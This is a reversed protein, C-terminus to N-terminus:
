VEKYVNIISDPCSIACNSCAICDEIRVAKSPSYGKKNITSLDIELVNKPCVYVCVGCGKCRDVDLEVWKKLKTKEAM